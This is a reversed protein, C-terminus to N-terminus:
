IACGNIARQVAVMLILLLLEMITFGFIGAGAFAPMTNAGRIKGSFNLASYLNLVLWIGGIL